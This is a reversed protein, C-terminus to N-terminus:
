GAGRGARVSTSSKAAVPAQYATGPRRRRPSGAGARARSTRTGTSGPRRRCRRPPRRDAPELVVNAMAVVVPMEALEGGVRHEVGISGPDHPAVVTRRGCQGSSAISRRQRPPSAPTRRRGQCRRRRACGEMRPARSARPRSPRCRSGTRPRLREIDVPDAWRGRGRGRPPSDWRCAPGVTSPWRSWAACSGGRRCSCRVSRAKGQCPCRRRVADRVRRPPPRYQGPTRSPQGSADVLTGSPTQDRGGPRDIRPARERRWVRRQSTRRLDLTRDEPSGAKQLRPDPCPRDPAVGEVIQKPLSPSSM